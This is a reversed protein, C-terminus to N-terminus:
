RAGVCDWTSKLKLKWDEYYAFALILSGNWWMESSYVTTSDITDHCQINRLTYKFKFM